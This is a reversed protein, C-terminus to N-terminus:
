YVPLGHIWTQRVRWDASLDNFHARKGPAITGHTQTIGLLQAPHLSAMRIATEPLTGANAIM